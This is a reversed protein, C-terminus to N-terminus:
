EEKISFFLPHETGERERTKKRAPLLDRQKTQLLSDIAAVIM